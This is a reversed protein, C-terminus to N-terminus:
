LRQQPQLSSAALPCAPQPPLSQSPSHSCRLLLSQPPLPKLPLQLLQRCSLILMMLQRLVARMNSSSLSRQLAQVPDIAQYSTSRRPVKAATSPLFLM